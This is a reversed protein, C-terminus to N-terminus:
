YTKVPCCHNRKCTKGEVIIEKIHCEHVLIGLLISELLSGTLIIISNVLNCHSVVVLEDYISMCIKNFPSPVITRIAKKIIEDNIHIRHIANDFAPTVLNSIFYQKQQNEIKEEDRKVTEFIAAAVYASYKKIHEDIDSELVGKGRELIKDDELAQEFYDYAKIFDKKATAFGLRFYVHGKHVHDYKPQLEEIIFNLFKNWFSVIEDNNNVKEIARHIKDALKAWLEADNPSILDGKLLHDQLLVRAGDFDGEALKRDLDSQITEM